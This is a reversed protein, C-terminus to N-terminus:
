LGLQTYGLKGVDGYTLIFGGFIVRGFGIEKV